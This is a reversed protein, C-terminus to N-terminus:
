ISQTNTTPTSNCMSQAATVEEVNYGESLIRDILQQDEYWAYGYHKDLADFYCGCMSTDAGEGTCGKVFDVKASNRKTNQIANQSPETPTTATSYADSVWGILFLAGLVVLITKFTKM